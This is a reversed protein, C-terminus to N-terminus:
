ISSTLIKVIVYIQRDATLASAATFATLPVNAALFYMLLQFSLWHLPVSKMVKSQKEVCGNSCINQQTDPRTGGFIFDSSAHTTSKVRKIRILGQSIGGVRACVCV